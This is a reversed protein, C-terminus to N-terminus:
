LDHYYVIVARADDAAQAFAELGTGTYPTSGFVAAYDSSYTVSRDYTFTSYDYSDGFGLILNIATVTDASVPIYKDAATGLFSAAELLTWTGDVKRDGSLAEKYLGLNALPSDIVSLDADADLTGDADKDLKTTYIDTLTREIVQTPARAVNLRGLEVDPLGEQAWAPRTGSAENGHSGGGKYQPGKADSDSSPGGQGAGEGKPGQPVGADSGGQQGKSSGSGGQGQGGKTTSGQSQAAAEASVLSTAILIPSVALAFTAVGSLFASHMFPRQAITTKM